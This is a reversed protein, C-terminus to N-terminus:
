LIYFEQKTTLHDVAMVLVDIQDDHLGNPFANVQNLFSENWEGEILYCNGAEIFASISNARSVKDTTPTEGEMINMSVNSKLYQVVSKGSAKPEVYIISQRSYGNSICFDPIFKVLEPFELRAEKIRRIYLKGDYFSAALLATPDNEQKQTYATDLFFNWELSDLSIREGNEDKIANIINFWKGKLIGGDSPSPLQGYQGSYGYSGLGIQFSALVKKSLRNAFLLGDQYNERLKSPIVNVSDEAPLCIHEWEEPEKKLLMGTLDNEHLRQMIVIFVGIEPQNLRSRLTENFFTNANEREVESRALQPNQPDDIVIIDAGMGTVAGGTSTCYRLGGEPTTYKSKTNEDKSIKVHEFHEIFWDSEILRRAKTSLDISLSAAYSSSIFKISSERVWCYVSFFVNVLESKLTRPPINIILHQKREEGRLIRELEEQLRDCILKIHWNETLEQGNHLTKFAELTFRYFSRKCLESIIEQKTLQM